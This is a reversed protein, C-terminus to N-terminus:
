SQKVEEPQAPQDEASAPAKSRPHLQVLHIEWTGDGDAKHVREAQYAIPVSDGLTTPSILRVFVVARHRLPRRLFVKKIQEDSWDLDTKEVFFNKEVDWGSIEVRYSTCIATEPSM